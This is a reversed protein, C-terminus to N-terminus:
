QGPLPCARVSDILHDSFLSIRLRPVGSCSVDEDTGTGAGGAACQLVDVTRLDFTFQQEWHWGRPCAAHAGLHVSTTAVESLRGPLFQLKVFAAQLPAPVAGCAPTKFFTVGLLQFLM